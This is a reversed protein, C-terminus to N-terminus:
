GPERLAPPVVEDLLRMSEWGLEPDM